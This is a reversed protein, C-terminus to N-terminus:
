SDGADKTEAKTQRWQKAEDCLEKPEPQALAVEITEVVEKADPKTRPEFRAIVKGDRGILFKTFNWKVPGAFKPNTKESTLYAYLPTIDDGKVSVKELMDFTVNFKSSCFEAIEENTGPEQKGFNNAPIGVIILGKDAYKENLAQLQKYQKTLGCRSAVNVLMVVNGHYQSLKAETGDIMTVDFDLAEPTVPKEKAQEKAEVMGVCVMAALVVTAWIHLHNMM